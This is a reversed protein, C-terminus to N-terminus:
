ICIYMIYVHTQFFISRQLDILFLMKNICRKNEKIFANANRNSM